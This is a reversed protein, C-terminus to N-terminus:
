PVPLLCAACVVAAQSLWYWVVLCTCESMRLLDQTHPDSQLVAVVEAAETGPVIQDAALGAGTNIRRATPGCCEETCMVGGGEHCQCRCAGPTSALASHSAMELDKESGSDSSEGGGGSSTGAAGCACCCHQPPDATGPLAVALVATTSGDAPALDMQSCGDMQCGSTCNSAIRRQRRVNGWHMLKHVGLDLLATALVGGAFCAVALRFAADASPLPACTRHLSNPPASCAHHAHMAGLSCGAESAVLGENEGSYGAQDFHQLSNQMLIETMSVYRCTCLPLLMAPGTLLAPQPSRWSAPRPLLRCVTSATGGALQIGPRLLRM